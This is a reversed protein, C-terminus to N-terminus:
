LINHTIKWVMIRHSIMSAHVHIKFKLKIWLMSCHSTKQQRCSWWWHLPSPQFRQQPLLLMMLMRKHMLLRYNTLHNIIQWLFHWNDMCFKGIIWNEWSHFHVLAKKLWATIMFHGGTMFLSSFCRLFTSSWPAHVHLTTEWWSLSCPPNPFWACTLLESNYICRHHLFSPHM